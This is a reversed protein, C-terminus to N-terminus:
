KDWGWIAFGFSEVAQAMGWIVLGLGLNSPWPGSDWDLTGFNKDLTWFGLGLGLISISAESLKDLAGSENGLPGNCPERRHPGM